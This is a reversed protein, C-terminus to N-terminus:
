PHFDLDRHLQFQLKHAIKTNGGAFHIRFNARPSKKELPPPPYMLESQIFRRWVEAHQLAFTSFKEGGSRKLVRTLAENQCVASAALSFTEDRSKIM